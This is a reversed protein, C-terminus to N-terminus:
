KKTLEKKRVKVVDVKGVDTLPLYDVFSYTYPVDREPLMNLCLERLESKIEPFINQILDEKHIYKEYQEETIDFDYTKKCLKCQISIHKM